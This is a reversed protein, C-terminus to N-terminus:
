GRRRPKLLIWAAFARQEAEDVSNFMDISVAAMFVDGDVDDKTFREYPDYDALHRRAQLRVFESAVQAIRNSFGRGELDGECQNKMPGHDLARYAHCWMDRTLQTPDNGVLM